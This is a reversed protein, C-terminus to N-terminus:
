DMLQGHIFARGFRWDSEVTSVSIELHAATEKTTMGFYRRLKVVDCARANIAALQDLASHLDLELDNFPCTTPEGALLPFKSRRTQTNRGRAHDKLCRDMAVRAMNLLHRQDQANFLSRRVRIFTENVLATPELTHGKREGGMLKRAIARFDDYFQRILEEEARPDGSRARRLLERFSSLNDSM